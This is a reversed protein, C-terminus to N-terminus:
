AAEERAMTGRVGDVNNMLMRKKKMKKKKKRRGVVMGVCFGDLYGTEGGWVSIAPM